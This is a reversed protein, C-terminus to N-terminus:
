TEVDSAPPDTAIPAPEVYPVAKDGAAAVLVDSPAAVVHGVKYATTQLVTVFDFDAVFQIAANSPPAKSLRM